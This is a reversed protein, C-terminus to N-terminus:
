VFTGYLQSTSAKTSIEWYTFSWPPCANKPYTPDPSIKERPSGTELETKVEAKLESCNAKPRSRKEVIDESPSFEAM